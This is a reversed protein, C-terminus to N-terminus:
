SKDPHRGTGVQQLLGEKAPPQERHDGCTGELGQFETTRHDKRTGELKPYEM